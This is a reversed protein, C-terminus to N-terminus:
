WKGNFSNKQFCWLAQSILCLVDTSGRLRRPSVGTTDLEFDQTVKNVYLFSVRVRLDLDSLNLTMQCKLLFVFPILKFSRGGRM